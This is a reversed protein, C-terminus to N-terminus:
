SLNLRMLLVFKCFHDLSIDSTRGPLLMSVGGPVHSDVKNMQQRGRQDVVSVDSSLFTNTPLEGDAFLTLIPQDKRILM